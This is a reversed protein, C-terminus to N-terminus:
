FLQLKTAEDFFFNRAFPLLQMSPTCICVDRAFLSSIMSFSLQAAPLSEPSCAGRWTGKELDSIM